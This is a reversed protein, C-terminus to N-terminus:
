ALHLRSRRLQLANSLHEFRTLPLSQREDIRLPPNTLGSGSPTVISLASRAVLLWASSWLEAIRTKAEGAEASLRFVLEAKRLADAKADSAQRHM